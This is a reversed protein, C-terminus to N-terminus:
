KLASYATYGGALNVARVGSKALIQAAKESRRGARCYLLVEKGKFSDIQKQTEASINEINALPINISPSVVGVSLEHPERVDIIVDFDDLADRADAASITPVGNVDHVPPAHTSAFYRHTTVALRPHSFILNCAHHHSTLVSLRRVSCHLLQRRLITAASRTAISLTMIVLLDPNQRELDSELNGSKGTGRMRYSRCNPMATNM